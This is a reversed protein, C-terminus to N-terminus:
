EKAELMTHMSRKFRHSNYGYYALREGIKERSRFTTDLISTIRVDTNYNIGRDPFEQWNGGDLADKREDKSEDIYVIYVGKYKEIAIIM